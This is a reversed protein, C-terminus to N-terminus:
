YVFVIGCAGMSMDLHGLSGLSFEFSGVEDLVGFGLLEINHGLTGLPWNKVIDSGGRSFRSVRPALVELICSMVGDWVLTAVM